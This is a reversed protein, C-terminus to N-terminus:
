NSITVSIVDSLPGDGYNNRAAVRYYYTTGPTIDYDSCFGDYGSSARQTRILEYDDNLGTLSRYILYYTAGSVSSWSITVRKQISEYESSLGTPTFTLTKASVSDSLPSDGYSNRALVKYYYTTGPTLKDDTYSTSFRSATGIENYDDTDTLSRYIIYSPASVDFSTSWNIKISNATINSTSLVKPTNPKLSPTTASIPDSLPSDGIGNRAAIKYYYTTEPKLRSDLYFRSTEKSLESYDDLGTLSRYIIYSTANSVYEWDLRIEPYGTILLGQARAEAKFNSPAADPLTTAFSSVAKSLGSEGRVNYASVKYYYTTNIPLNTDLYSTSDASKILAIENYNESFTESRYVKYGDALGERSWNIRISSVSAAAATLNIPIDPIFPLTKAYVKSAESEGHSNYATVGFSYTVGSYLGSILISSSSLPESKLRDHINVYGPINQVYKNYYYYFKYGDADSVLDWSIIIDNNPQVAATVNSPPSPVLSVTDTNDCGSIIFGFVLIIGIIIVTSQLKRM